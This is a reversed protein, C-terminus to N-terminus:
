FSCTKEQELNASCNTAKRLNSNAFIISDLRQNMTPHPDPEPHFGIREEEARAQCYFAFFPILQNTAISQTGIKRALIESSFVDGWMEEYQTPLCTNKGITFYELSIYPNEDQLTKLVSALSEGLTREHLTARKYEDARTQLCRFDHGRVKDKMCSLSQDFPYDSTYTAITPRSRNGLNLVFTHTPGLVHGVEHALLMFLSEPSEDILLILGGIHINAASNTSISYNLSVKDAGLVIQSQALRQAMQAVLTENNATIKSALTKRAFQKVENYMAQVKKVREATYISNYDKNEELKAKVNDLSSIEKLSGSNECLSQSPRLCINQANAISSFVLFSLLVKRM